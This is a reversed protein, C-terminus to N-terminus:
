LYMLCQYVDLIFTSCSVDLSAKSGLGIRETGKRGVQTVMKRLKKFNIWGSNRESFLLLCGQGGRKESWHLVNKEESNGQPYETDM